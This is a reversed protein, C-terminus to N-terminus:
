RDLVYTGPAEVLPAYGPGGLEDPADIQPGCRDRLWATFDPWWSGQETTAGRLWGAADAGTDPNTRYTAKVNGPPNVIAAIHGSTSLV